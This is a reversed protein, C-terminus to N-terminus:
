EDSEGWDNAGDLIEEPDWIGTTADTSTSAAACHLLNVAFVGFAKGNYPNLATGKGFIRPVEREANPFTLPIVIDAPHWPLNGVGACGMKACIRLSVVNTLIARTLDGDCNALHDVGNSQGTMLGALRTSLSHTYTTGAWTYTLKYSLSEPHDMIFTRIESLSAGADSMAQAEALLSLMYSLKFGMEEAESAGEQTLAVRNQIDIAEQIDAIADDYAPGRSFCLSRIYHNFLAVEWDEKSAFSAAARFLVARPNFDGKGHFDVALQAVFSRWSTGTGDPLFGDLVYMFMDHTFGPSHERLGRNGSSGGSSRGGGDTSGTVPNKDADHTERGDTARPSPAAHVQDAVCLCQEAGGKGTNDTGKDGKGSGRDGGPSMSPSPTRGGSDGGGSVRQLLNRTSPGDKGSSSGGGSNGGNEGDPTHADSAVYGDPCMCRGDVLTGQTYEGNGGGGGGHIPGSSSYSTFDTNYNGNNSAPFEAEWEPWFDLRARVSEESDLDSQAIAMCVPSGQQVIYPSEKFLLGVAHMASHVHASSDTFSTDGNVVAERVYAGLTSSRVFAHGPSSTLDLMTYIADCDVASTVEAVSNSAGYDYDVDPDTQQVPTQQLRRRQPSDVYHSHTGEYVGLHTDFKSTYRDLGGAADECLEEYDSGFYAKRKAGKTGGGPCNCPCCSPVMTCFAADYQCGQSSGGFGGEGEAHSLLERRHRRAKDNGKMESANVAGTALAAAIAEDEEDEARDGLDVVRAGSLARDRMAAVALNPVEGADLRLPPAAVNETKIFVGAATHILASRFLPHAAGRPLIDVHTIAYSSTAGGKKIVLRDQNLLKDFPLLNLDAEKRETLTSLHRETGKEVLAGDEVSTEKALEAAWLNLGFNTALLATILVGGVLAGRRFTSVGRNLGTISRRLFEVTGRRPLRPDRGKKGGGM